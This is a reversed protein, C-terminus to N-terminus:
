VNLAAYAAAILRKVVASNTEDGAAKRLENLQKTIEVYDDTSFPFMLTRTDQSFYDAANEAISPNSIASGVTGELRFLLDDLDDGSFLSRNLHNDTHALETLLDALARDDYLALDNAKNDALLVRLAGDADGDYYTVAIETWGLSKAALFTHNGAIIQGTARHVVIPRYQGHTKLSEAIAGVDGQRVNRPHTAFKDIPQALDRLENRINM